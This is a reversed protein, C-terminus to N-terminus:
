DYGGSVGNGICDRTFPLRENIGNILHGSIKGILDTRNRFSSYTTDNRM